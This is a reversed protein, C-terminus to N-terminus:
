YIFFHFIQVVAKKQGVALLRLGPLNLTTQPIHKLLVGTAVRRPKRFNIPKISLARSQVQRSNVQCFM